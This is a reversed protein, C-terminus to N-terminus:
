KKSLSLFFQRRRHIIIQIHKTTTKSIDPGILGGAKLTYRLSIYCRSPLFTSLNHITCSWHKITTNTDQLTNNWNLTIGSTSEFAGKICSSAFTQGIYWTSYILKLSWINNWVWYNYGNEKRAVGKLLPFHNAWCCSHCLHWFILSSFLFPFLLNKSLVHIWKKCKPLKKCKQVTKDVNRTIFLDRWLSHCHM